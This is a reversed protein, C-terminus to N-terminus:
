PCGTTFLNLFALVDASNVVGFPEAIDPDNYTPAGGNRVANYDNLYALFDTSLLQGDENFDAPCTYDISLLEFTMTGLRPSGAFPIEDHINRIPERPNTPQNPSTFDTGSDTGADWAFLDVSVSSVWQDAAILPQSETGVFWDPSPAIMTVLTVVHHDTSAEFTAVAEGDGDAGSGLIRSGSLGANQLQLIENRLLNTGGTEAMQKIGDSAIGGPEWLNVDDSHPAGVIQSFHANGVYADPHSSATWMADFTVRYTAVSPAPQAHASAALALTATAILRNM